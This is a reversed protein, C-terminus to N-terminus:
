IVVLTITRGHDAAKRIALRFSRISWAATDSCSMITGRPLQVIVSSRFFYRRVDMWAFGQYGFEELGQAQTLVTQGPGRANRRPPDVFDDEALAADGGIRRQTQRSGQTRGLSEPQIQLSLEVRM